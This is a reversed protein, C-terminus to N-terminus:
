RGTLKHPERQPYTAVNFCQVDLWVLSPRTPWSGLLPGDLFLLAFALLRKTRRKQKM